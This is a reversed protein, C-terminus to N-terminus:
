DLRSKWFDEIIEKRTNPYDKLALRLIGSLTEQDKIEDTADQWVMKEFDTM